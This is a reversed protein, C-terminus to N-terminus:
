NGSNCSNTVQAVTIDGTDWNKSFEYNNGFERINWAILVIKDTEPWHKNESLKSCIQFVWIKWGMCFYCKGWISQCVKM